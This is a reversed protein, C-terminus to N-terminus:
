ESAFAPVGGREGYYLPKIGFRDRALVLEERERDCWALTFMGNLRALGKPGFHKLEALVVETDTGSQFTEVFGHRSEAWWRGEDDPGRHTIARLVGDLWERDLQGGALGAIGCM